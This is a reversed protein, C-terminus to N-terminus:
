QRPRHLIVCFHWYKTKFGKKFRLFSLLFVESFLTWSWSQKRGSSCLKVFWVIHWPMYKGSTCLSSRGQFVELSSAWNKETRLDSYFHFRHEYYYSILEKLVAPVEGWQTCFNLKRISTYMTIHERVLVPLLLDDTFEWLANIILM